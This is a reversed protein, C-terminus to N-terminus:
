NFERWIQLHQFNGKMKMEEPFNDWLFYGVQEPDYVFSKGVKKSLEEAISSKGSGFAGNIWLIM